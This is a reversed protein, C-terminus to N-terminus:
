KLFEIVEGILYFSGAIILPKNQMLVYKMADETKEISKNEINLSHAIKQIQEYKSAREVKPSTFVFETSLYKLEKLMDTIDKDSMVGFLIMWDEEKYKSLLISEKLSRVSDINHSVDIILPPNKRIIEMRASFGVNKRINNLGSRIIDLSINLDAAELASIALAANEIQKIGPIDILLDNYIKNQISISGEPKLEENLHFATKLSDEVYTIDISKLDFLYRVSNQAKSVVVPVDNKIIGAKELAIKEITDGLFKQHDMGINTIISVVPELVNTSDFRGGMGTEIVGIDIDNEAFYYLAMATTIEFFTAGIEDAKSMLLNAISLVDDDSIRNGNITIRENFDVLHPSTYSGTKYGSEMLISTLMANVSGKGNTGAIHITKLKKHPDGCYKLLELTRDLGPKIGFRHRSFINNLLKDKESFNIEINKNKM